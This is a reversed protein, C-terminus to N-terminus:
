LNLIATYPMKLDQENHTSLIVLKTKAQEIIMDRVTKANDSDLEKTPEDLLLIEADKIFARALSVRQKIGGSLESPLLALDDETLGLNLLLKKSKEFVAKDKRDSVVFAVNELATLTPFLRYEQFAMSISKERSIEGLFDKDLGAIIRLLTTKGVGSEGVLLYMGKDGFSYSLDSIIQKKGFTKTIHNLEFSM